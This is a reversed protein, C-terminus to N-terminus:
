YAHKDEHLSLTLHLLSKVMQLSEDLDVNKLIDQRSQEMEQSSEEDSEGTDSDAQLDCEGELADDNSHQSGLNNTTHQQEGELIMDAEDQRIIESDEINFWEELVTTLSDPDNHSQLCLSELDGLMQQQVLQPTTSSVDVNLSQVTTIRLM